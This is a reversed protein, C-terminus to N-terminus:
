EGVILHISSGLPWDQPLLGRDDETLSIGPFLYTEFQTLLFPLELFVPIIRGSNLRGARKEAMEKDTQRSIM